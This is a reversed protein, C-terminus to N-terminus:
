SKNRSIRSRRTKLRTLGEMFFLLSCSNERRSDVDLIAFSFHIKNNICVNLPFSYSAIKSLELHDIYRLFVKRMVDLFDVIMM